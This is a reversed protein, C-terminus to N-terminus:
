LHILVTLYITVIPTLLLNIIYFTIIYGNSNKTIYEEKNRFKLYILLVCISIFYALLAIILSFVELWIISDLILYFLLFCVIALVFFIILFRKINNTILNFFLKENTKIDMGKKIITKIILSISILSFIIGWFISVLSVFQVVPYLVSILIWIISSISLLNLKQNSIIPLWFILSTIAFVIYLTTNYEIEHGITLDIPVSIHYYYFQCLSIILCIFILLYYIQPFKFNTAEKNDNM